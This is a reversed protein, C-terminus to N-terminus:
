KTKFGYVQKWFEPLVWTEIVQKVTKGYPNYYIGVIERIGSKTFEKKTYIEVWCKEDM